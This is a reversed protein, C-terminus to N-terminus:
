SAPHEGTGPHLTRAVPRTKLSRGASIKPAGVSMGNVLAAGMAGALVDASASVRGLSKRLGSGQDSIEQVLREAAQRWEGQDRINELADIRERLPALEQATATALQDRATNILRLTDADGSLAAQRASNRIARNVLPPM